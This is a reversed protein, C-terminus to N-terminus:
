VVEGRGPRSARSLAKLVAKEVRAVDVGPLCRWDGVPCEASGHPRCPRCDLPVTLCADGPGFESEASISLTLLTSVFMALIVWYTKQIPTEPQRTLKKINM